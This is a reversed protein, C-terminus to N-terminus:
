RIPSGTPTACCTVRSTTPLADGRTVAVHNEVYQWMGVVDGAVQVQEEESLRGYTLLM